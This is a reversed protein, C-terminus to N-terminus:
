LGVCSAGEEGKSKVSTWSERDVRNNICGVEAGAGRTGKEERNKTKKM